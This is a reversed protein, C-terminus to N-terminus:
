AARTQIRSIVEILENKHVPKTVYADMGAALCRERDGSMAHATMAVIPVRCGTSQERTRVAATASLGDMVPMQIDMLILDFTERESAALAERGDPVVLVQHGENELIRRAVTQNIPNDEALLIHLPRGAAKGARAADRASDPARRISAHGCFQPAAEVYAQAPVTFWFISGSGPESQMGISGGMMTVLRSCIALGLGTGGYHRTVSPDAQVFPRFITQQQAVPIGIGTDRVEFRLNVAPNATENTRLSQVLLRVEGRLTFKVANGLLNILIQRIRAEDGIVSEPVPPRIEWSLNLGKQHAALAMAKVTEQVLSLLRFPAPHFELKGAEIRSFDLIDNIVDLLSVASSQVIKLSERQEATLETELLLETMGLIRNMPTRIEHSMNALFTSKAASALVAKAQAFRLRRALVLAILLLSVALVLATVLVLEYRRTRQYASITSADLSIRTEWDFDILSLSGDDAMKGIEKRLLDAAAEAARNHRAAGICYWFSAGELPLIRLRGRTCPVAMAPFMSSITTLGFEADGACVSPMVEEASRVPIVHARSFYRQSVRADGKSATAVAITRAGVEEPRGIRNPERYV